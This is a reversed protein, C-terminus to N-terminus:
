SLRQLRGELYRRRLEGRQVKGSTTKPIHGRKVFVLDALPMGLAKGVRVRIEHGLAALQAGDTGSVELVLVAREGEAGGPVSFAGCREMGGGGSAGEAIWELEHPMLNHGHVILLDKLRGTIYLEGNKLFGLDGTRLWHHAPSESPIMPPVGMGRVGVLTDATAAEDNYYGAFISPGRVWIEGVQEDGLFEGPKGANSIRIEMDSTPAGVCVVENLAPDSTQSLPVPATRVGTRKLDAALALTGEAMGYCPLFFPERFGCAAFKDRFASCTQPQIMEAGTLAAKWHSLSLEAVEAPEVREVCLQYAFNPAPSLGNAHASLTRLWLKPRALFADPRLLWLDLGHTIAFFFCGVLGMDHNLPLWCVVCDQGIFPVTDAFLGSAATNHLVSSHRIMVARQRGTSGSTLQMFAIDDPRASHEIRGSAPAHATFEDPTMSLAAAAPAGFDLLEKRTAADCLLRKPGLLEVLGAVKHAHAESGGLAGTPAVLVPYAGRIIAGLHAALLDWSTPLCMLLRDGPGIGATALRAAALQALELIEPYTHREVSQGRRDFVAIGREPALRATHALAAPVTGTLYDLPRCDSALTKPGRWRLM